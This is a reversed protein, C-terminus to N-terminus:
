GGKRTSEILAVINDAIDKIRSKRAKSFLTFAFRAILYSGVLAGIPFLVAFPISSLTKLGVGLGVGLGAGLGVGGVLGGFLGAAMQGLRNRVKVVSQGESPTVSIDVSHGTRQVVEANTAWSLSGGMVNGTGNEGTFSPIMAFIRELDSQAAAEGALRIEILDVAGGLFRNQKQTAAESGVEVAARRILASSIGAESAIADIEEITVGEQRNEIGEVTSENKQLHLAKEIIQRVEADTYKRQKDSM